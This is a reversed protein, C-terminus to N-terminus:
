SIICANNAEEDSHQEDSFQEDSDEQDMDEEDSDEEDSDRSNAQIWADQYLFLSIYPDIDRKWTPKSDTVFSALPLSGDIDLSLYTEAIFQDQSNEVDCYSPRHM